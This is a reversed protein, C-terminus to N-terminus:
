IQMHAKRERHTNKDTKARRERQTHSIVHKDVNKYVGPSCVTVISVTAHERQYKGTHTNGHLLEENSTRTKGM